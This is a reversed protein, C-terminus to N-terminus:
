MGRVLLASTRKVTSPRGQAVSSEVALGTGALQERAAAVTQELDSEYSEQVEAMLETVAAGGDLGIWGHTAHVAAVLRITSGSPWETARALEVARESSPTGDYALIVKM